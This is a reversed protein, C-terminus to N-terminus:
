NELQAQMHERFKHRLYHLGQLSSLLVARFSDPEPLYANVSASVNDELVTVRGIRVHRQAYMAAELARSREAADDLSWFYPLMLALVTPEDSATILVYHMGEYKFYVDGDEDLRPRFGEEALFDLAAQAYATPIVPTPVLDTM